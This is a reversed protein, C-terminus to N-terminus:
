VAAAPDEARGRTGTEHRARSVGRGHRGRGASEPTHLPRDPARGAVLTSGDIADFATCVVCELSWQLHWGRLRIRKEAPIRRGLSQLPPVMRLRVNMQSSTM